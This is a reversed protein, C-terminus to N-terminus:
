DRRTPPERRWLNEWDANTYLLAGNDFFWNVSSPLYTEDPHFYIVPAYAEIMANVQSLDPMAAALSFNLNKLCRVPFPGGAATRVIFTGPSLGPLRQGRASPVLEHISIGGNDDSSWLEVEGEECQDTFDDRVCRLSEPSPKEPSTTVLYGVPHYGSPAVPLWFYGGGGSWILAFDAPVALVAAGVDGDIDRAVLLRGFFRKKNRQAYAGLAFYGVPIPSPHFFSAGADGAASWIKTFTSVQRVELGGLDISGKGFGGGALM